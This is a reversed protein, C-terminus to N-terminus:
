HRLGAQKLLPLVRDRFFELEAAYDLFYMVLGQLGRAQYDALQDVIQEPTGILPNAGYGAVFKRAREEFNDKFSGSEIGLMAMMNRAAEWDGHDLISQYVARAEEETERCVVFASCMLGVDRNYEKDARQQVGLLRPIDDPRSLSAFNVDVNRATFETGAASTGASVLVPYPRQVPKPSSELGVLDFYQGKFDFPEEETWLRKVITLWEEGFRYRDDHERLTRGFMGMEAQFWGMVVNLGFRGDSIHDITAAQKAATVPHMLGVNSTAFPMINETAAAMGAAWTYVDFSTGNHNTEGGQGKWRGLPLAVEFNMEDALQVARLNRKWTMDSASSLTTMLNGGSCNMAFIGLKLKQDGFLPVHKRRYERLEERNM